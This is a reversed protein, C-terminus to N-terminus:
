LTKQGTWTGSYDSNVWTGSANQGNISGQFVAGTTITGQASIQNNSVSGEIEETSIAGTEKALGIIINGFIISNFIGSSVENESNKGTYTGEYCSVLRTSLEKAIIAEIPTSYGTFTIASISPDQGSSSTTFLMTMKSGTFLVNDILQGAILTATTSLTDNYGNFTVYIKVLGNGNLIVVKITGSSGVLIGKYVGASSNDYAAIAEPTDNQQPTDNSKQCSFLITAAFFGFLFQKVKQM